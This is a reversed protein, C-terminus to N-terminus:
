AADRIEREGAADERVRRERALTGSGNSRRRRWLRIERTSEVRPHEGRARVRRERADGERGDGRQEPGRSLNPVGGRVGRHVRVGDRTTALAHVGDGRLEARPRPRAHRRAIGVYERPDFARADARERGFLSEGREGRDDM